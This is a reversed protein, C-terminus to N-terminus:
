DGGGRRSGGLPIPGDVEEKGLFHEVSQALAAKRKLSSFKRIIDYIQSRACTPIYHQRIFNGYTMKIATMLSLEASKNKRHRTEHSSKEVGKHPSDVIELRRLADQNGAFAFCRM